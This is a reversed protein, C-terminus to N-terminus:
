TNLRLVMKRNPTKTHNRKEKKAQHGGHQSSVRVWNGGAMSWCTSTAHHRPRMGGAVVVQAQWNLYPSENSISHHPPFFSCPITSKIFKQYVMDPGEISSFSHLGYWGPLCTMVPVHYIARSLLSSASSQTGCSNGCLNSM